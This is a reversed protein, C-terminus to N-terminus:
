NDLSYSNRDRLSKFSTAADRNGVPRLCVAIEICNVRPKPKTLHRRSNAPGIPPNVNVYDVKTAFPPSGYPSGDYFPRRQRFRRASVDLHVKAPVAKEMSTIRLEVASVVVGAERLPVVITLALCVENRAEREVGVDEDIKRFQLRVLLNADRDTELIENADVPVLVVERV